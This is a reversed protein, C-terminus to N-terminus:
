INNIVEQNPFIADEQRDKIIKYFLKV